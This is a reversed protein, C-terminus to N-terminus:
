QPGQQNRDILSDVRDLSRKISHRLFRTDIEDLLWDVALLGGIGCAATGAWFLFDILGHGCTEEARSMHNDVTTGSFNKDWFHALALRSDLHWHDAVFASQKAM